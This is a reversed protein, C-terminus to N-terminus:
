APNLSGAGVYIPLVSETSAQGVVPINWRVGVVTQQYNWQPSGVPYPLTAPDSLAVVVGTLGTGTLDKIKDGVQVAVGNAYSPM